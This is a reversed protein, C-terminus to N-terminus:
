TVGLSREAELVLFVSFVADREFVFAASLYLTRACRALFRNLGHRISAVPILPDLRALRSLLM